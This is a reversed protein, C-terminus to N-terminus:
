GLVRTYSVCHVSLWLWHDVRIGGDDFPGTRKLGGGGGKPGRGIRGRM